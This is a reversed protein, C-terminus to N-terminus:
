SASARRFPLTTRDGAAVQKLFAKLAEYEPPKVSLPLLSFSREVHFGGRDENRDM